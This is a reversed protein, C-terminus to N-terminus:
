GYKKVEKKRAKRPSIVRISDARPTYVIVYMRAGIYGYTIFRPEGYAKRTDEIINANDWDLDAALDFPLGHLTINRENRAKDFSIKM